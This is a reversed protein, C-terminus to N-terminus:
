RCSGQRCTKLVALRASLQAPTPLDHPLPPPPSSAGVPPLLNRVQGPDSRLDFCERDGSGYEFYSMRSDQLGWCAGRLDGPPTIQGLVVTRQTSELLSIGDADPLRCGALGAITPALDINSVLRSSVGKRFAPGWALMPVRMSEVYPVAKTNMLRHQGMQFGNDSAIFVYTNDLRGSARLAGLISKVAEDLALMTRLRRKELLDGAACQEPTLVPLMRTREAKDSVDGENYAPTRPVMATSFESRHRAAEIPYNLAYANHPANAGFLVFIPQEAPSERVFQCAYESLTDTVYEGDTFPTVIGNIDLSFDTYKTETTSVWRNWGPPRDGVTEASNLFKGFMGTRYGAQQLIWPVSKQALGKRKYISYSSDHGERGNWAVGHNHAYQGTLFSARAPDCLPTNYFFNPYFAADKLARRSSRLARWDSAAMDDAVIMVINPQPGSTRAGARRGRGVTVGLAIASTLLARRTAPRRERAADAAANACDPASLDDPASVGDVVPAGLAADQGILRIAASMM